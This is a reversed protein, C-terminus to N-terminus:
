WDPWLQEDLWMDALVAFDKFNVSKSGEPEEDYLDAVSQVPIHLTAAGNSIVYAIEERSLARNYIRVEDLAGNYPNGGNQDNCGFRLGAETDPGLSFPGSAVALGKHYLTGTTGDFTFAIHEWQGVEPQIGAVEQGAYRNVGIYGTDINGEIHWMMDNEAWTDRKAILGQWLGSM